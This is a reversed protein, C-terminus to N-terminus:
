VPDDPHVIPAVNPVNIHRSDSNVVGHGDTWSFRVTYVDAPTGSPNDDPYRHTLRFPTRGPHFTEVPSGDGWDVTLTLQDGRDPDVLRGTFVARDGENVEPTLTVDTIMAPANVGTIRRDKGAGGRWSGELRVGGVSW